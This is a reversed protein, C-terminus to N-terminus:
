VIVALSESFNIIEAECASGKAIAFLLSSVFSLAFIAVCYYLNVGEDDAAELFLSSSSINASKPM